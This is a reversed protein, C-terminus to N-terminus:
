QNEVYRIRGGLITVQDDNSGDRRAIGIILSRSILTPASWGTLTVGLVHFTDNAAPSSLVGSDFNVFNSLATFDSPAYISSAVPSFMGISFEVADTDSGSVRFVLDLTMDQTTDLYLPAFGLRFMAYNANTSGSGEMTALGWLSSTYDNTLITTGVGDVRSPYVFDMRNYFKLTNNAVDITKNTFTNTSSTAIPDFDGILGAVTAVWSSSSAGVLTITSGITTSTVTAAAATIINGYSITDDGVSIVDIGDADTIDIFFPGAGEAAPPLTLPVKATAGTNNFRVYAEHAKITYATTKSVSLSLPNNKEDRNDPYFVSRSTGAFTIGSRFENGAFFNTGGSFDTITPSEFYNARFWVDRTYETSAGADGLLSISTGGLFHNGTFSAGTSANYLAVRSHNITNGTYVSHSRGNSPKIYAGYENDSFNNGVVSINASGDYIGFYGRRMNNGIVEIYESRNTSALRIGTQNNTGYNGMILAYNPRTTANNVGDMVIAEGNFNVFENFLIETKGFGGYAYIAKVPGVTASTYNTGEGNGNWRLGSWKVINTGADMIYGVTGTKKKLVGGGFLYSGNTPYLTSVIFSKGSPFYFDRAGLDLGSQIAATDDTVGDGTANIPPQTVDVISNTAGGSSSITQWTNDGRLYKTTISSGTGLNEAPIVSISEPIGGNIVIVGDNWLSIDDGFGGRSTALASESSLSGDGANIVVAGGSGTAIKSRAIAASASIQANVIGTPLALVGDDRIFKTGDPTGSALRAIPFQGSIIAAADLTGGEDSNEHTHNANVFNTMIGEHIIPQILLANTKILVNTSSSTAFQTGDFNPASVSVGNVYVSSGGGGGGIIGSLQTVLNTFSIAKNTTYSGSDNYAILFLDNNGLSTTRPYASFKVFTTAAQTSCALALLGILLLKKFM